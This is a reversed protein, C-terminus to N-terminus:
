IVISLFLCTAYLFLIIPSPTQLYNIIGSLYPSNYVLEPRSFLTAIPIILGISIVEIFMLIFMLIFISLMEIKQSNNLLAFIDKLLKM